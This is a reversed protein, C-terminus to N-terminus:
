ALVPEHKLRLLENRNLEVLAFTRGNPDLFEVEVVDPSFVEVVTGVHGAALGDAPKDVLLAVVDLLKIPEQQVPNKM